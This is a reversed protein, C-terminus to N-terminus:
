NTYVYVYLKKLALFFRFKEYLREIKLFFTRTKKKDSKLMGLTDVACVYKRILILNDCTPITLVVTHHHSAVLM